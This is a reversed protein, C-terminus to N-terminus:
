LMTRASQAIVLAFLFSAYNCRRASTVSGTGYQWHKLRAHSGLAGRCHPVVCDLNFKRIAVGGANEAEFMQAFNARALSALALKPRRWFLLTRLHRIPVDGAALSRSWPSPLFESGALSQKQSLNLTYNKEAGRYRIDDSEVPWMKVGPLTRGTALTRTAVVAMSANMEKQRAAAM